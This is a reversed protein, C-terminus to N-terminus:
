INLSILEAGRINLSGRIVDFPFYRYLSNLLTRKEVTNIHVTINQVATIYIRVNNPPAEPDTGCGRCNRHGLRLGTKSYCKVQM